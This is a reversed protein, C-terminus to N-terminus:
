HSIYNYQLKSTHMHSLWGLSSITFFYNLHYSSRALTVYHFLRRKLHTIIIKNKSNNDDLIKTLDPTFLCISISVFFIDVPPCKSFYPYPPTRCMSKQCVLWNPIEVHSTGDTYVLSCRFYNEHTTFRFSLQFSRKSTIFNYIIIYGSVSRDTQWDSPCELRDYESLAWLHPCTAVSQSGETLYAFVTLFLTLIATRRRGQDFDQM